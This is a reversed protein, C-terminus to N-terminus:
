ALCCTCTRVSLSVPAFLAPGESQARAPGLPLGGGRGGERGGRSVLCPERERNIPRGNQAIFAFVIMFYLPPVRRTPFLFLPPRGPRLLGARESKILDSRVLAPVMFRLLGLDGGALWADTKADCLASPVGCAFGARGACLSPVGLMREEPCNPFLYNFPGRYFLPGLFPRM